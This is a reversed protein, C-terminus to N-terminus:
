KYRQTNIVCANQFHLGIENTQVEGAELKLIFYILMFSYLVKWAM